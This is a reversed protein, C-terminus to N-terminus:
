PVGSSWVNSEVLTPTEFAMPADMPLHSCAAALVRPVSSMPNILSSMAVGPV